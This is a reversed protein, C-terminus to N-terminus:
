HIHTDTQKNSDSKTGGTWASLSCLVSAARL